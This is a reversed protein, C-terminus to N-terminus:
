DNKVESKLWREWIQSCTYFHINKKCIEWPICLGCEIKLASFFEALEEDTMSRIKEGNTM